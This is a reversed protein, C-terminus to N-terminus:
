RDSRAAQAPRWPGRLRVRCLASPQMEDDRDAVVWLEGSADDAIALGEAKERVIEGRADVIPAWRVTGGEGMVGIISGHVLGDRSADPSDEAAATFLVVDGWSAADTFGLSTRALTGLVFQEIRTPPPPPHSRPARLHALLDPWRLDCTANVPRREGAVAGNGRGFLRLTDGRLLAGEINLESGSFATADRLQAYLEPVHVITAAPSARTVGSVLVVSERATSSGSGFAVLMPDDGATAVCAELDLKLHKSGRSDGFQRRGCVGPPLAVARAEAPAAPDVLAVFNVDDLVVAFTSGLRALGSAARVHAPRDSDADAGGAFRLPARSVLEASLAPDQRAVRPVPM